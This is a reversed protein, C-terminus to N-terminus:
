LNLTQFFSLRSIKDANTLNSNDTYSIGAAGTLEEQFPGLYFFTEPSRRFAEIPLRATSTRVREQARLSPVHILCFTLPVITWLCLGLFRSFRKVRSYICRGMHMKRLTTDRM